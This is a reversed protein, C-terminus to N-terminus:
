VFHHGGFFPMDASLAHDRIADPLAAADGIGIQGLRGADGGGVPDVLQCDPQFVQHFAIMAQALGQTGGHHHAACATDRGSPEKFLEICQPRFIISVRCGPMLPQQRLEYGSLFVCPQRAMAQIM